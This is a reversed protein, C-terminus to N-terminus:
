FAVVWVPWRALLLKDLAHRIRISLEPSQETLLTNSVVGTEKIMLAMIVM